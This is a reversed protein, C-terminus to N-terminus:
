DKLDLVFHLVCMRGFVFFLMLLESDKGFLLDSFCFDPLPNSVYNAQLVYFCFHVPDHM